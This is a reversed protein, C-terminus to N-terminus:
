GTNVWKNNRQSARLESDIVQVWKHKKAERRGELVLMNCIPSDGM